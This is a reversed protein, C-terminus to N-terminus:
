STSPAEEVAGLGHHCSLAMRATVPDSEKRGYPGHMIELLCADICIERKIPLNKGNHNICLHISAAGDVNADYFYRQM